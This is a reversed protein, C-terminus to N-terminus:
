FRYILGARFNSNKLSVGQGLDADGYDAVTYEARLSVMDTIATELGAGYLFAGKTDSDSDSVGNETITGKFRTGLYGGKLYVATSPSAKIGARASIGYSERAQIKASATNVGDRGSISIKAASYNANGELGVFGEGMSVDWGAVIGGAVGNGSLGDASVNDLGGFSFDNAKLEYNDHGLDIGFYGGNFPQAHAASAFAVTSLAAAIIKNM